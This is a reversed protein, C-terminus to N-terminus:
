YYSFLKVKSVFAQLHPAIEVRLDGLSSNLKNRSRAYFVRGNLVM